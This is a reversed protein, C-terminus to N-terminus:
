VELCAGSPLIKWGRAEDPYEQSCVRDMAATRKVRLAFYDEQESYISRIYLRREDAMVINMAKVYRSREAILDSGKQLANQWSGNEFRRIVSFIKAAGNIGEAQIRVGHLEGNFLFVLPEALFPMNYDVHINEDRFASRAHALMFSTAGFRELDDEWVPRISRYLRWEDGEKWACGWGHGQYQPSTRAIEQFQELHERMSFPERSRIALLRCM